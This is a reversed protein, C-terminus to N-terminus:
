RNVIYDNIQYIEDLFIQILENNLEPKPLNLKILYYILGILIKNEYFYQIHIFYQNNVKNKDPHTKLVLKKYFKKLYNNFEKNEKLNLKEEETNNIKNNIKNNILFSYFSKNEDNKHHYFKDITLIIEDYINFLNM